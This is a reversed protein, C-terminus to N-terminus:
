ALESKTPNRWTSYSQLCFQGLLHSGPINRETKSQKRWTKPFQSPIDMGWTKRLDTPERQGALHWAELDYGWVRCSWHDELELPWNSRRKWPLFVAKIKPTTAPDIQFIQLGDPLWTAGRCRAQFGQRSSASPDFFPGGSPGKKESPFPEFILGYVGLFLESSELIDMNGTCDWHERHTEHLIVLTENSIMLNWCHGHSCHSNFGETM